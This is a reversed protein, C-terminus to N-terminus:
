KVFLLVETWRSWRRRLAIWLLRDTAGIRPLRGSHALAALQQRLALNELMLDAHSRLASRLSRLLVVALRVM